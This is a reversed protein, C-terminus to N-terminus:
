GSGPSACASPSAAAPTSRGRGARPRGRGPPSGRARARARRRRRAEGVDRADRLARRHAHQRHGVAAAVRRTISRRPVSTRCADGPSASRAQRAAQARTRRRGPSRRPWGSALAVPAPAGLAEEEAAHARQQRVLQAADVRSPARRPSRTAARRRASPGARAAARGARTRTAACASPAARCARPRAGGGSALRVVVQRDQADVRERAPRPGRTPAAGASAAGSRRPPRRRTGRSRAGLAVHAEVRTVPEPHGVLDGSGFPGGIHSM